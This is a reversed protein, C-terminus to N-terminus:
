YSSCSTSEERGFWSPVPMTRHHQQRLGGVLTQASRFREASFFDEPQSLLVLRSLSACLVSLSRSPRPLACRVPFAATQRPRRARGGPAGPAGVLPTRPLPLPPPPDSWAGQLGGVYHARRRRSQAGVRRKAQESEIRWISLIVGSLRGRRDVRQLRGRAELHHAGAGRRGWGM